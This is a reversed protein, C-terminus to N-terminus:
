SQRNSDSPSYKSIGISLCCGVRILDSDKHQSGPIMTKLPIGVHLWTQTGSSVAKTQHTIEVWEYCLVYNFDKLFEMGDKSLLSLSHM